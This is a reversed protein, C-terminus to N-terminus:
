EQNGNHNKKPFRRNKGDATDRMLWKTLNTDAKLIRDIEEQPIFQKGGLCAPVIWSMKIWHYLTVRHKNLLKSAESITKLQTTEIQIKM